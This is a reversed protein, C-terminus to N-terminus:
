GRFSYTGRANGLKSSCCKPKAISTSTFTHPMHGLPIQQMEKNELISPYSIQGTCVLKFYIGSITNELFDQNIRRIPHDNHELVSPQQLSPKNGYPCLSPSDLQSNIESSPSTRLTAQRETSPPPQAACLCCM